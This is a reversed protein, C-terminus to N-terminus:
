RDMPEAEWRAYFDQAALQATFEHIQALEDALVAQVQPCVDKLSVRPELILRISSVLPEHIPRGIQSCLYVYAERIGDVRSHIQRAVHHTFYSYIKGVHNVPNKGAHAEISQPRNFCILGNARNGRGVQGSDAGEASTGLVTLYMGESARAPDDLTNLAIEINQFDPALKRIHELLHQSIEKKRRFYAESGAVFRDVFAMAVTLHLDRGRRVGMVKVDEGTDPFERKFAPSNLHHEVSLVILETQSLPAFGVAASTDNSGIQERAFLDTLEPSGPEIETQFTVHHDPDVFRLHQRIWDKASQIVIGPVDISKDHFASSARDALVLRMPKEVSGGGPRPSSTGGVLMTKDLNHHLIRGFNKEYEHCLAVSAYDAIADCISDPHGLGKREVLEVAADAVASQTLQEVVIEKMIGEKYIVIQQCSSYKEIQSSNNSQRLFQGHLGEKYEM